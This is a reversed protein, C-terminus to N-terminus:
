SRSRLKRRGVAAYARVRDLRTDRLMGLPHPAEALRQAGHAQHNSKRLAKRVLILFVSRFFYDWSVENKLPNQPPEQAELFITQPAWPRWSGGWFPPWSPGGFISKKLGLNAGMKPLTKAAWARSLSTKQLGLMVGHQGWTLGLM